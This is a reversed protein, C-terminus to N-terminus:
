RTQLTDLWQNVLTDAKQAIPELADEHHDGAMVTLFRRVIVCHDSEQYIGLRLPIDIVTDHSIELLQAGLAPNGFIVTWADVAPVIGRDKMDASHHVVGYVIVSRETLWTTLNEVIQEATGSVRIHGLAAM